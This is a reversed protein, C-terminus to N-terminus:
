FQRSLTTLVRFIQGREEVFFGTHRQLLIQDTFCHFHGFHFKIAGVSAYLGDSETQAKTIAVCKGIGEFVVGAHSGGFVSVAMVRHFPIAILRKDSEGNMGGFSYLM